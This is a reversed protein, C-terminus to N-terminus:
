FRFYIFSRADDHGLIFAALAFGLVLAARLPVSRLVLAPRWHRLAEIGLMVLAGLVATRSVDIKATAPALTVLAHLLEGYQALSAARIIGFTLLVALLTAVMGIAARAAGGRAPLAAEPVAKHALMLSAQVAGFLIYTGEAGHWLGMAIWTVYSAVAEKWWRSWATTRVLLLATPRYVYDGIWRTLSIHWRQWFDTLTTAFLPQRFNQTLKVGFLNGAGLAILSYGGFDALLQVVFGGFGILAGRAGGAFGASYALDVVGGLRDGVVGKLFLGYAILLMGDLVMDPTPRRGEWLPAALNGYREIPGSLLTPYFTTFLALRLLSRDAPVGRRHVDILYGCCAFSYFSLGVPVLVAGYGGFDLGSVPLVRDLGDLWVPLYKYVALPALVAACAALIGRAGRPAAGLWLGAAYTVLVIAALLPPFRWDIAGYLLFAAVLLLLRRPAAPLLAALAAALLIGGVHIFLDM